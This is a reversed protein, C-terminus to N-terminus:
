PFKKFITYRLIIELLLFIAAAVAFPLYKERFRKLTMIQVKSKELKDIESYINQLSANDRARFYLGGTEAAINRLLNEDINVQQKRLTIEGDDSQMPAAAFGETAMGITYVKVGLSRAIEMATNPDLRGGQDDGDTLLIVIRTKAKSDKLRDVSTALGDGIATGDALYGTQANLIQTKLTNRDMTIPSSTFSEGAFIVLGIRDTPRKDVFDMAVQKMAELRNPKFDQALMSGSVDMCLMIDIGEGSILEEDNRVQPRALAVILCVVTLMRLVFPVHRLVTKFSRTEGFSRISSVLLTAQRKKAFRAYSYVMVPVLLLLLFMWPYAFEINQLWSYLV